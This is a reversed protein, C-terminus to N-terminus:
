KSQVLRVPYGNCGYFNGVFCGDLTFGMRWALGPYDDPTSSWYFGFYGVADVGGDKCNRYGAAPLTISQGNPGTVVLSSDTTLWQCKILEECQEKTPLQAGFAAVAEDYTYFGDTGGTENVSKWKTGSPLGLDVYQANVSLAMLCLLSFCFLKITKM